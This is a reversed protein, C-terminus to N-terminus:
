SSSSRASERAAQPPPVALHARVYLPVREDLEEFDQGGRALPDLALRIRRGAGEVGGGLERQKEVALRLSCEGLRALLRGRGAGGGGAAAAGGGGGGGGGGDGDDWLSSRSAFWEASCPRYADDPHLRLVPAFAAVLSRLRDLNPLSPPPALTRPPPKPDEHHQQQEEKGPAAAAAAAPAAKDKMAKTAM